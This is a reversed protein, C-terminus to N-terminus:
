VLRPRSITGHDTNAIFLEGSADAFMFLGHGMFGRDIVRPLTVSGSAGGTVAERRQDRDLRRQKHNATHKQAATMKKAM